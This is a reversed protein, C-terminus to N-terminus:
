PRHQLTGGPLVIVLPSVDASCASVPEPDRDSRENPKPRRARRVFVEIGVDYGWIRVSQAVAISRAEPARDIHGGVIPLVMAAVLAAGLTWGLPKVM